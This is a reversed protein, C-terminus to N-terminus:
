CIQKYIKNCAAPFLTGVCFPKRNDYMLYPYIENELREKNYLGPEVYFEVKETSDKFIKELNFVIM